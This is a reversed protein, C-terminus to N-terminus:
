ESLPALISQLADTDQAAALDLLFGHPLPTVAGLEPPPAWATMTDQSIKADMSDLLQLAGRESAADPQPSLPLLLPCSLCPLLCCPPLVSCAPCPLVPPLLSPHTPNQREMASFTHVTSTRLLGPMAPQRCSHQQQSSHHTDLHSPTVLDCLRLHGFSCILLSDSRGGNVGASNLAHTLAHLATLVTHTDGRQPACATLWVRLWGVEPVVGAGMLILGAYSVLLQRCADLVARLEQGAADQGASRLEDGARTYCGLLYHFPQQPYQEPAAEIIRNVIVRDLNDTSIM